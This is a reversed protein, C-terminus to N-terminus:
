FFAVSETYSGKIKIDRKLLQELIFRFTDRMGLEEPTVIGKEDIKGRGILQAVISATYATTRAMSTVGGVKDYYDVLDFIYHKCENDGVVEVRMVLLDKEEELELKPTLLATLFERPAVKVAGIQISKTDLLGCEILTRIKEAHGSYRLTKEFMEKVHRFKENEKFTYLLTSLGDTYFGEFKGVSPFDVLELGTLADTERIKDNVVIRARTVYEDWVSELTFLVKYGLPPSPEQPLGGCFIHVKDVSDVKSAGYGALMNSLGPAVGCGPIVTVEKNKAKNRLGMHEDVFALDVVNVGADIEAEVVQASIKEPLANVVMDFNGRRLLKILSYRNGADVEFTELRPSKLKGMCLSLSEKRREGVAVKVGSNILDKAAAVGMLGVGLVLAKL